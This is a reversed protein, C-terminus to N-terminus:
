AWNAPSQGGTFDWVSNFNCPDYGTPFYDYFFGGNASPIVGAPPQPAASMEGPIAGSPLLAPTPERGDSPSPETSEQAGAPMLAVLACILSAALTACKCRM